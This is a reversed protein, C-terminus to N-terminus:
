AAIAPISMRRYVRVLVSHPIRITRYPRKYGKREGAIALVGPENLFIRRVTDRSLSWMKAVEEIVYHREVVVLSM